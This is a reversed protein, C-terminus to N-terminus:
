RIRVGKRSQRPDMQPPTETPKPKPRGNVFPFGPDGFLNDKSRDRPDFRAHHIKTNYNRGGERSKM